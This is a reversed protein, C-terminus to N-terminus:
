TGPDEHAALLAEARALAADVADADLHGRRHFEAQLRVAECEQFTRLRGLAEGYRADGVSLRRLEAYLRDIEEEVAPLTRTV